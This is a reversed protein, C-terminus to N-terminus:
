VSGILKKMGRDALLGALRRTPEVSEGAGPVHPLPQFVTVGSVSQIIERNDAEIKGDTETLDTDPEPHNPVVAAVRLGAERVARLTLLSHNITGLGARAVVILPLGLTGALELTFIERSLPALLGGAGEVVLADYTEALASCSDLIQQIEVEKGEQEAALHPSAPLRFRYPNMLELEAAEPSLGCIELCLKLDGPEGPSVGTQVPKVPVARIGRENMLYAVAAAVATKGVGTDTGTIFFGKPIM